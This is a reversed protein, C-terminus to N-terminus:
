ISSQTELQFFRSNHKKNHKYFLALLVVAILTFLILLVINDSFDTFTHIDREISGALYLMQVIMAALNNIFHMIVPVWISGSLVFFYGLLAGLLLRPLLGYVDVHFVSFVFASLWVSLHIGAGAQHFKRLLIGRFVLEEGIAPIIAIMLVNMVIVWSSRESLFMNIISEYNQQKADAWSILWEINIQHLLHKSLVVSWSVLPSFLLFSLMGITLFLWKKSVRYFHLFGYQREFILIFICAPIIFIALHTIMQFWRIIMVKEPDQHVMGESIVQWVDGYIMQLILLAPFLVFFLSAISIVVFLFIQALPHLRVFM